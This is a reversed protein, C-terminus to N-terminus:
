SHLRRYIAPKVGVVKKFLQSFYKQDGYGVADGVAAITENTSTLMKKAKEMRVSILYNSFNMDTEKKFLASFYVPNLDVVQAIDELLIKERFHEEVYQKAQRIPKASRTEALTRLMELCDGLNQKLLRVMQPLKYCHQCKELLEKKQSGAEEQNLNLQAYFTDVLKEALEYYRTMDSSEPVHGNNFLEGICSELSERDCAEVSAAIEDRLEEFRDRDQQRDAGSISDFYILRGTGYRMRNCVARYAELISFRIEGFEKKETGIGITVEYQDFGMLYEKIKLLITSLLKKVERSKEFDYNFLCYIHQSDKECILVERLDANFLPDIIDKVRESTIRDQREDGQDVRLHDLKIDVGRYAEGEMVVQGDALSVAGAQDIINKLFDRKIVRSSEMATKKLEEHISFFEEQDDLKRKIKLLVENVEQGNVPKLIYDEVGYTLARHAYEFEKYGSVVIFHVPIGSDRTMKILDLGNVKPMRVDTIVIDPHKEQISSFATEGNDLVELCEMELEEWHILREILIGIRFEDDVIIVKRKKEAM